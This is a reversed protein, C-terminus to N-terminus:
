RKKSSWWFYGALSAIFLVVLAFILKTNDNKEESVEKENVFVEEEEEFIVGRKTIVTDVARLFIKAVNSSPFSRVTFELDAINDNDTDIELAKDKTLSYEKGEMELTVSDGDKSVFKAKTVVFRKLSSPKYVFFMYRNKNFNISLGKKTIVVTGSSEEATTKTQGSIFSYVGSVACNGVADCGTINLYYTTGSSLGTLQIRHSTVFSADSTQTGLSPTTGYDMTSNAGEDTSWTITAASTTILSISVSSVTPITNDVEINEASVSTGVDAAVTADFGEVTINYAGDIFSGNNTEWTVVHETADYSIFQAVVTDGSSVNITINSAIDSSVNIIIDRSITTGGTPSNITFVPVTALAIHISFLTTIIVTFILMEKKM